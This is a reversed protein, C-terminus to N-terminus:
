KKQDQYGIKYGWRACLSSFLICLITIFLKSKQRKVKFVNNTQNRM